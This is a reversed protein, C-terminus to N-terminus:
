AKGKEKPPRHETLTLSYSKGGMTFTIEREPNAVAVGQVNGNLEMGEFLVRMWDIVKRKGENPKRERPKKGELSYNAPKKKGSTTIRAKKSAKEQEKTLDFPTPNGKDVQADWWADQAQENLEDFNEVKTNPHKDLWNDVWADLWEQTPYQIEKTM